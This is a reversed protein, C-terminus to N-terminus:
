RYLLLRGLSRNFYEKLGAVFEELIDASASGTQRKPSESDRYAKLIVSVPTTHPLPVLQQNKTVNEWDDVLIAKIHDPLPIKISPRSHFEQEQIQTLRREFAADSDSHFYDLYLVELRVLEAFLGIHADLVTSFYLPEATWGTGREFTEETDRNVNPLEDSIDEVTQEARRDRGAQEAEAIKEYKYPDRLTGRTTSYTYNEPPSKFLHDPATVDWGYTKPRGEVSDRSPLGDGAPLGNNNVNAASM